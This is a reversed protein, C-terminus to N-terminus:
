KLSPWFVYCLNLILAHWWYLIYLRINIPCSEPIHLIISIQSVGSKLHYYELTRGQELWRGKTPDEDPKFLGYENAVHAFICACCLTVHYTFAHLLYMCTRYVFTTIYVSLRALMCPVYLDCSIYMYLYFTMFTHLCLVHLVHMGCAYAQVFLLFTLTSGQM